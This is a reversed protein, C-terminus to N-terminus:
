LVIQQKLEIGTKLHIDERVMHFTKDMTLFSYAELRETLLQFLQLEHEADERKSKAEMEEERLLRREEM